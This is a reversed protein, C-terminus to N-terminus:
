NVISLREVRNRPAKGTTPINQLRYMKLQESKKRVDVGDM